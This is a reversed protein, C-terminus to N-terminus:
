YQYNVDKKSIYKLINSVNKAENKIGLLCTVLNQACTPTIKSVEKLWKYCHKKKFFFGNNSPFDDNRDNFNLSTELDMDCGNYCWPNRM